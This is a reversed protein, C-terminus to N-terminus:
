RSNEELITKLENAYYSIKHLDKKFGNTTNGFEKEPKTLNRSNEPLHEIFHSPLGNIYLLMENFPKALNGKEPNASSYISPNFIDVKPINGFKDKRLSFIDLLKNISYLKSFLEKRLSIIEDHNLGRYHHLNKTEDEFHISYSELIGEITVTVKNLYDLSQKFKDM